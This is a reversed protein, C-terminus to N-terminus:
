IVDAMTAESSKFYAYAVALCAFAIAASLALSAVDPREGRLLVTRFNEILGSIPDLLFLKRYRTPVSQISYVVPITFMWVQLLLPLALGIDRFRVHIASFLLAVAAAFGAIVIVIPIAFLANWTPSIRYYAMFAALILCGMLFDACGAALYSLPIIERPFYMKTLLNPYLVLGHVASSISTSFFIWPLLACLVFLPYPIGGTAVTTVRTFVITYIIMLALPQFIAWLWGLISQKYRVKLRFRSLVWLLDSYHALNRLGSFITGFSFAPPRIIRISPDHHDHTAAAPQTLLSRAM